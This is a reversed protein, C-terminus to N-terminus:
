HVDHVHERDVVFRKDCYACDVFGTFPSILMWVKPHGLEEPEDGWCSVKWSNVTVTELPPRQLPDGQGTSLPSEPLVFENETM